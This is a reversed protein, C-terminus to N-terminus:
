KGHIRVSIQDSPLHGWFKCFEGNGKLSGFPDNKLQRGDYKPQRENDSARLRFIGVQQIYGTVQWMSSM